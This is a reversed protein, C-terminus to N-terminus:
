IYEGLKQRLLSVADGVSSKKRGFILGDEEIRDGNDNVRYKYVNVFFELREEHLNGDDYGNVPSIEIELGGDPSSFRYEPHNPINTDVASVTWDDADVSEVIDIYEAM